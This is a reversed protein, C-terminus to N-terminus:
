GSESSSEGLGYPLDLFELKPGGTNELHLDDQKFLSIEAVALLDYGGEPSAEADVIKGAGQASDSAASFLEEGPMPRRGSEVHALYMRRKTKGLYRMRAVVEQGTYCGKTFSVGNVLDMNAMQPVFAEVTPEYITPIGARIELLSWQEPTGTGADAALGDWLSSIVEFGGLIEFRPTNGPLRFLHVGGLSAGKGEEAPVTGLQNALLEEASAGAVGIRVLEDSADDVSVKSMLVYMPLRKLLLGHTDVPMQLVFDNDISFVRFNAIMRGKPTCIGSMQSNGGALNRVDNTTQGQLFTEADEGSVRILRLHSLDFLACSSQPADGTFRAKGDEGFAASRSELFSKWEENM